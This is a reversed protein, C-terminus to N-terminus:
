PGSQEPPDEEGADGEAIRLRVLSAGGQSGRFLTAFWVRGAPCHNCEYM